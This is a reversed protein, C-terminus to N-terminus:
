GGSVAIASHYRRFQIASTNINANGKEMRKDPLKKSRKLCQSSVEGLLLFLSHTSFALVGMLVCYGKM